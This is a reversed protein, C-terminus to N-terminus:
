AAENKKYQMHYISQRHWQGAEHWVFGLDSFLHELESRTLHNVWGQSARWVHTQGQALPAYSVLLVDGYSSIRELFRRPDRIYELLGSVVVYDFKEDTDPYQHSNFDCLLVNDSSKVCDCPQYQCGPKLYRALTQAGSGMDIVSSNAPILHAIVRNRADWSPEQKAVQQWRNVDTRFLMTGLVKRTSSLNRSLNNWFRLIVAAFKRIM